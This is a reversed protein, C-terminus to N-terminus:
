RPAAPPAEPPLLLIERRIEPAGPGDPDLALYRAWARRALDPRELRRAYLIGLNRQTVPYAPDIRAAQLYHEEALRYNGLREHVTALNNCVRVDLPDLEFARGFDALAQRLDGQTFHVGGLYNWSRSRREDHSLAESFARLAGQLDGAAFASEGRDWLEEITAPPATPPATAPAAAPPFGAGGALLLAALLFPAPLSAKM